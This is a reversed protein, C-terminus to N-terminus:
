WRQVHQPLCFPPEIQDQEGGHPHVQVGNLALRGHVSDGVQCCITTLDEHRESVSRNWFASPHEINRSVLRYTQRRLM